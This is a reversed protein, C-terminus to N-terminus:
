TVASHFLKSAVEKRTNSRELATVSSPPHFARAPVVYQQTTPSFSPGCFLPIHHMTHNRCYFRLPPPLPAQPHRVPATPRGNMECRGKVTTTLCTVQHFMAWLRVEDKRRKRGMSESRGKKRTTNATAPVPSVSLEARSTPTSAGDSRLM